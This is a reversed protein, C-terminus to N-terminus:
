HVIVTQNVEDKAQGQSSSGGLVAWGIAVLKDDNFVYPTFEDDTTLGDSQRLSRFYLIEVLVGEKIYKDSDKKMSQPLGSQGPELIAIVEEKSDGLDVQDKHDHYNGIASNLKMSNVMSCGSLFFSLFIILIVQRMGAGKQIFNRM